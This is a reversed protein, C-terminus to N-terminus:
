SDIIDVESLRFTAFMHFGTDQILTYKKRPEVTGSVPNGLAGLEIVIDTPKDIEFSANEGLKGKWICNGDKIRIFCNKSSLLAAFGDAVNNPMKVRVTGGIQMQDLPCGCNPCVKAKDSIEKGCEECKIMAM